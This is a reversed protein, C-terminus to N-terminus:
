AVEVALCATGGRDFLYQLDDGSIRCRGNFGWSTGWSNRIRFRSVEGPVNWVVGDVVVCHGGRVQGEAHIFGEPDVRDMGPALWDVGIVAPGHNLIHLAMTQASSTFAYGDIHKGVAPVLGNKVVEAGARVTTGSYDEGPIGDVKQAAHYIDFLISNQYAHPYPAANLNGWWGAGVCAGEVGQQGQLPNLWLKKGSTREATLYDEARWDREDDKPSWGLSKHEPDTESFTTTGFEELLQAEVDM